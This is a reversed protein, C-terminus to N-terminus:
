KDSPSVKTYTDLQKVIDQAWEELVGTTSDRRGDFDVGCYPQLRQVRIRRRHTRWARLGGIRRLLMRWDAGMRVQWRLGSFAKCLDHHRRPADERM